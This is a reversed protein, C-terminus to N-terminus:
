KSSKGGEKSLNIEINVWCFFVFYTEYNKSNNLYKAMFKQNVNM